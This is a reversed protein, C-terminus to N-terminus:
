HQATAAATASAFAARLTALAADGGDSTLTADLSPLVGSDGHMDYLLSRAWTTAAPQYFANEAARLRAYLAAAGTTDGRAIDDSAESDLVTAAKV